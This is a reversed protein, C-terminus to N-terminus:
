RLHSGTAIPRVDAVKFPRTVGDHETVSVYEGSRFAHRDFRFIPEDDADDGARYSFAWKGDRRHILHGREDDAGAWFRRVTCFEGKAKWGAADLFGDGDLPAIFEYGHRTSGEPFDKTRALELHISKLSM